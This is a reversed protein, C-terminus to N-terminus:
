EKSAYLQKGNYFSQKSIIYLNSKKYKQKVDYTNLCKM